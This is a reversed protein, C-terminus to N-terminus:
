KKDKRANPFLESERQRVLSALNGAINRFIKQGIAPNSALGKADLQLLIADQVCSVTASRVSDDLLAMEGFSNGARLFSLVQEDGGEGLAVSLVGDVVIYMETGPDGEKLIVEGAAYTRKQAYRLVKSIEDSTLGRFPQVNEAFRTLLDQVSYRGISKTSFNM